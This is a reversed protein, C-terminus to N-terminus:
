NSTLLSELGLRTFDSDYCVPHDLYAFPIVDWAREYSSWLHDVVSLAAAGGEGNATGGSAHHVDKDDHPTDVMDVDIAVGSGADIVEEENVQASEAAHDKTSSSAATSAKSFTSTFITTSRGAAVTSVEAAGSAPGHGDDPTM